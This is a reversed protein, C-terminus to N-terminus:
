KDFDTRKPDAAQDALNPRNVTTEGGIKGIQSSSSTEPNLTPVFALGAHARAFADPYQESYAQRLQAIRIDYSAALLVFGAILLLSWAHAFFLVGLIAFFGAIIQGLRGALITATEFPLWISLIARVARGGDMPYAPILNFIVLVVNGAMLFFLFNPGLLNPQQPLEFQSLLAWPFFLLFSIVLNVAPGALAIVLEQIPKGSSHELRALGGIPLITIDLTKIHFLRAALAHGFEHLLVCTFVAVLMVLKLAAFEWSEGARWSTLILYAPLLVFLWHIYVDIGFASGIKWSRFM